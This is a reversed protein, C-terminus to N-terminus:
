NTPKAAAPPVLGRIVNAETQSTSEALASGGSLLMFKWFVDSFKSKKFDVAPDMSNWTEQIQAAYNGPRGVTGEITIEIYSEPHMIWRYSKKVLVGKPKQKIKFFLSSGDPQIALELTEMINSTKMGYIQLNEEEPTPQKPREPPNFIVTTEDFTEKSLQELKAKAERLAKKTDDVLAQAAQMGQEAATFAPDTPKVSEEPKADKEQGNSVMEVGSPKAAIDVHEGGHEQPPLKDTEVSTAPEDSINTVGPATPEERINTDVLVAPEEPIKEEGLAASEKPIDKEGPAVSEEQVKKEGSEAAEEPFDKEPDQRPGEAANEKLKRAEELTKANELKKAADRPQKAASLRAMEVGYAREAKDLKATRQKCDDDIGDIKTQLEGVRETKSAEFEKKAVAIQRKREAELKEQWEQEAKETRTEVEAPTEWRDRDTFLSTGDKGSNGLLEIHALDLAFPVPGASGRLVLTARSSKPDYSKFSIDWNLNGKPTFVLSDQPPKPDDFVPPETLDGPKPKELTILDKGLPKYTITTIIDGCNSIQPLGFQLTRTGPYTLKGTNKFGERLNTTISALSKTLNKQVDQTLRTLTNDLVYEMDPKVRFNTPLGNEIGTIEPVLGTNTPKFIINFSWTVDISIRGFYFPDNGRGNWGWNEHKTSYAEWHRYKIDGTVTIKNGGPTWKVTVSQTSNMDWKRWIPAFVCGTFCKTESLSGPAAQMKSWKYEGADIYQFDFAPDAPDQNAVTPYLNKRDPPNAGVALGSRFYHEKSAPDVGMDPKLPIVNIAVCLQRLDKLIRNFFYTRHDLVYTGPTSADALNGTFALSRGAPLTRLKPNEARIDSQVVECFLLCNYDRGYLTELGKAKVGDWDEDSNLFPYNQRRV